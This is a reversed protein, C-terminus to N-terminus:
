LVILALGNLSPAAGAARTDPHCIGGEAFSFFFPVASPETM